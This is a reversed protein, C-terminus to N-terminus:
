KGVKHTRLSLRRAPQLLTGTYLSSWTIARLLEAGQSTIYYRVTSTYSTSLDQWSGGRCALLHPLWAKQLQRVIEVSPCKGRIILISPVLPVVCVPCGESCEKFANQKYRRPSRAEYCHGRPGQNISRPGLKSTLAVSAFALLCTLKNCWVLILVAATSGSFWPVLWSSWGSAM